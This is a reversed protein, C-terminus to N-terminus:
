ADKKKIVAFLSLGFKLNVKLKILLVEIKVITTLVKNIFPNVSTDSIVTNIIKIQIYRIPLLFFNYGIKKTITFKKDLQKGLTSWSYRRFHQLNLDHQSFLSQYAPVSLIGIGTDKMLKYVDEIFNVPEEIHELVDLFIILDYKKNIDEFNRFAEHIKIKKNNNILEIFYSDVELIDVKGFDQLIEINVGVGPGIELINIPLNFKQKSILYKLIDKRGLYWWNNFSSALPIHNYKNESSKNV